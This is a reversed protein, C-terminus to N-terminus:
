AGIELGTIRNGELRFAFTLMAPSGPFQGTVRARVKAFDGSGAVDLPEIEHRYKTKVDRWWVGIAHHGAHSRGEDRVIADPAFAHILANGDSRRDADLYIKIPSPLNM